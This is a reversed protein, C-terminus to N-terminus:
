GVTVSSMGYLKKHNIWTFTSFAFIPHILCLWLPWRKMGYTSGLVAAVILYSVHGFICFLFKTVTLVTGIYDNLHVVIDVINLVTALLLWVSFCWYIIKNNKTM